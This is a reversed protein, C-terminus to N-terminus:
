QLLTNRMRICECTGVREVSEFLVAGYWDIKGDIQAQELDVASQIRGGQMLGGFRHEVFRVQRHKAVVSRYTRPILWM